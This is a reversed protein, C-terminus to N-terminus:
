DSYRLVRWHEMGIATTDTAEATAETTAQATAQATAGVAVGYFWGEIQRYLEASDRVRIILCGHYDVGTNRRNTRPNHRKLTTKSFESPSVEVVDSWFALAAAVDATEHIQLRFALRSCAVGISDLFSLWLRILKPDSNVFVVNESRAYPKDKSGECWYAVVGAILLERDSLRGVHRAASLKQQARLMCRRGRIKEWYAQDRWRTRAAEPVPLDRVWNWVSSRAVGLTEAITPLSLGQSRLERARARHGDKARPRRTWAPPPVGELWRRLHGEGRLGLEAKIQALTRGARRLERAREARPDEPHGMGLLIEDAVSLETM